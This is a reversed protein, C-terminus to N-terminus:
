HCRCVGGPSMINVTISSQDDLFEDVIRCPSCGPIEFGVMNVSLGVTLSLFDQESHLFPKFGTGHSNSHDPRPWTRSFQPEKRRASSAVQRQLRRLKLPETDIQDASWLELMIFGPVGAGLLMPCSATLTRPLRSQELPGTFLGSGRGTRM